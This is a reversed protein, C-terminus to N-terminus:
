PKFDEDVIDELGIETDLPKRFIIFYAVVIIGAAIFILLWPLKLGKKRAKKDLGLGKKTTADQLNGLKARYYATNFGKPAKDSKLIHRTIADDIARYKAGKRRLDAVRKKCDRIIEERSWKRGGRIKVGKFVKSKM